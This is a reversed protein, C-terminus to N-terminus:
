LSDKLADVSNDGEGEVPEENIDSDLTTEGNTEGNLQAETSDHSNAVEDNLVDGGGSLDGDDGVLSMIFEWEKPQVSSVSLRSQKLMQLNELAGGPKAFRRLDEM